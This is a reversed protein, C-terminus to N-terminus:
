IINSGNCKSDKNRDHQDPKPVKPGNQEDVTSRLQPFIQSEKRLPQRDPDGGIGEIKRFWYFEYSEAILGPLEYSNMWWFRDSQSLQGCQWATFDSVTSLQFDHNKFHQCHASWFSVTALLGASFASVPVIGLHHCLPLGDKLALELSEKALNLRKVPNFPNFLRM